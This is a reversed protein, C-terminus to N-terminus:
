RTHAHATERATDRKDRIRQLDRENADNAELAADFQRVAEQYQGRHFFYEAMAERSIARQGAADAIDAKLRLLEPKPATEHRILDAVIRVARDRNGLDRHVRALLERVVPHGPYVADLDELIGLAAPHEDRERHVAVQALEYTLGPAAGTDIRELLDHAAGAEGRELHAVAAGYLHHAAPEVQGRFIELTRRPDQLARMRAQMWRFEPGRERAGEPLRDARARADTIRDLTVPHTRLYEPIQDGIGRTLEQMREFFDAMAHPDFGADALIRMGTNDAEAENSRTFNIQSQIGGAVGGAIVASGLQPDVASALVGALIALGTRFNLERGRAFMRALHRQTVHAIEHAIVAALEAEDRTELMLGSHIGILGGPMAFANVQRDDIPIFYFPGDADPTNALLQRGLADIYFTIEPDKVVPLTRRVERLLSRGLEREEAPTLVGGSAEGLEPLSEGHAPPASALALMLLLPLLLFGSWGAKLTRPAYQWAGRSRDTRVPRNSALGRHRPTPACATM